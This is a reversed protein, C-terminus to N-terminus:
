GEFISFDGDQLVPIFGNPNLALFEPSTFVPSGFDAQVVEHEVNKVKLVWAVSIVVAAFYYDYWDYCVL